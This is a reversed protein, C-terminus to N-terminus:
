KKVSNKLRNIDSIIYYEGYDSYTISVRFGILEFIANELEDVTKYKQLGNKFCEMSLVSSHNELLSRYIYPKLINSLFLESTIYNKPLDICELVLTVVDFKDEVWYNIDFETKGTVTSTCKYLKNKLKNSRGDDEINYLCYEGISYSKCMSYYSAHKYAFDQLYALNPSIDCKIKNEISNYKEIIHITKLTGGMLCKIKIVPLNKYCDDLTYPNFVEFPRDTDFKIRIKTNIFNNNKNIYKNKKLMNVVDILKNNNM